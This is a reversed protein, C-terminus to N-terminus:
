LTMTETAYTEFFDSFRAVRLPLRDYPPYYLTLWLQPPSWGELVPVLRGAALDEAVIFRPLMAVGEGQVAMKAILDGNNSSIRQGATVRRRQGQRSLDWVEPGGDADYALCCHRSLEEPAAPVGEAALYSPAAILLRQVPALRRWITLKDKPQRSIRIALDVEGAVIDILRDTLNLALRVKPHLIRFQAVVEPLLREGMSMPASIRLLGAADGQDERLEAAAEALGAVLPAVRAAYAAGAATLSVQRTTRLLLQVGLRDELAGVARTVSPPTMMLVRAAAVFSRQTAVALFVKLEEVESM